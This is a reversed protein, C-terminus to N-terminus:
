SPARSTIVTTASSAPPILPAGALCKLAMSTAMQTAPSATTRLLFIDVYHRMLIYPQMFDKLVSTLFIAYM